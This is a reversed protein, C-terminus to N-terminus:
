SKKDLKKWLCSNSSNEIFNLYKDHDLKEKDDAYIIKLLREEINVRMSKTTNLSIDNHIATNLLKVNISESFQIKTQGGTLFLFVHALLQADILANHLKRQSKNIAYRECLADLSNRQGPFMKRAVKLSDIVTCYSEITKLSVNTGELENNLFGLDFPANHIILESNRIFILFENVIDSFVPQNILFKDSIGHIRFAEPDIPRHPNLYVHFQNNTLRRNIIEVAGIEIIKHGEHPLGIKNMGTTETDLIVQRISRINM